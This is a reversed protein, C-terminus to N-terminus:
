PLASDLVARYKKRGSVTIGGISVHRIKAKQRIATINTRRPKDRLQCKKVNGKASGCAFEVM